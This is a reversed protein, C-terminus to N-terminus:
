IYMYLPAEQLHQLFSFPCIKIKEASAESRTLWSTVSTLVQVMGHHTQGGTALLVNLYCIIMKLKGKTPMWLELMQIYGIIQVWMQELLQLSM